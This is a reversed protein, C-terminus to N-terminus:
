ETIIRRALPECLDQRRRPADRLRIGSRLADDHRSVGGRSASREGLSSSPSRHEVTHGAGAANRGEACCVAGSSKRWARGGCRDM